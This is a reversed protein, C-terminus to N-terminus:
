EAKTTVNAKLQDKANVNKKFELKVNINRQIPLRVCHIQDRKKPMSCNNKKERYKQIKFM